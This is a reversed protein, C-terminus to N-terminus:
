NARELIWAIYKKFLDQNISPENHLEHGLGLAADFGVFTKDVSAAAEVFGNSAVADTIKDNFNHCLLVPTNFEAAVSIMWDEHRFMDRALRATIRGHNLPDRVYGLVGEDTDALCEASLTSLPGASSLIYLATSAKGPRLGKLAPAQAICGRLTPIKDRKKQVFALTMLGGMSHGMVFVPLNDPVNDIAISHLQLMDEFCQDFSYDFAQAENNRLVTRGHGRWDMGRVLIGAETFLKFVHDYRMVHEGIGHFFLVQARIAGTPQFCVLSTLVTTDLGSSETKWVKWINYYIQHRDPATFYSGPAKDQKPDFSDKQVKSWDPRQTQQLSNM